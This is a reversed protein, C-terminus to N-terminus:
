ETLFQCEKAIPRQEVGKWIAGGTKKFQSGGNEAAEKKKKEKKKKEM